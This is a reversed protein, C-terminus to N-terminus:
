TNQLWKGLFLLATSVPTKPGSDTLRILDLRGFVRAVYNANLGAFPCDFTVKSFMKELM